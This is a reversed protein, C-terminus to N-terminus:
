VKIKHRTLRNTRYGNHDDGSNQVIVGHLTTHHIPNSDLESTGASYYIREAM